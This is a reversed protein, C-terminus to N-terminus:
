LEDRVLLDVRLFLDGLTQGREAHRGGLDSEGTVEAFEAEGLGGLAVLGEGGRLGGSWSEGGDEGLVEEIDAGGLLEEYEFGGGAVGAGEGGGKVAGGPGFEDAGDGAVVRNKGDGGVGSGGATEVM